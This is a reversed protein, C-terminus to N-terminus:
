KAQQVNPWQSWPMFTFIVVPSADSESVGDEEEGAEVEVAEVSEREKADTTEIDNITM